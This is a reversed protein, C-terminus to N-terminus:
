AGARCQPRIFDGDGGDSPGKVPTNQELDALALALRSLLTAIIRSRLTTPARGLKMFIAGTMLSSFMLPQLIKGVDFGREHMGPLVVVFKKGATKRPDPGAEVPRSDQLQNRRWAACVASIMFPM